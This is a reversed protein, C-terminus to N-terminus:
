RWLMIENGPGHCLMSTRYCPKLSTQFREDSFDRPQRQGTQPAVISTICCRGCRIGGSQYAESTTISNRSCATVAKSPRPPASFPTSRSHRGRTGRRWLRHRCSCLSRMRAFRSGCRRTHRGCRPKETRSRHPQRTNGISGHYCSSGPGHGGPLPSPLRGRDARAKGGFGRLGGACAGPKSKRSPTTGHQCGGGQALLRSRRHDRTVPRPGACLDRLTTSAFLICPSRSPKWTIGIRATSRKGDNCRPAVPRSQLRPRPATLRWQRVLWIARWPKSPLRLGSTPKTDPRGIALSYSKILEHVVHFFDPM